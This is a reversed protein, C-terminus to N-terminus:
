SCARTIRHMYDPMVTYGADSVIEAWERGHDYIRNEYANIVHAIEHAIITPRTMDRIGAVCYRFEIYCEGHQCRTAALTSDSVSTLDDVFVIRVPDYGYARMMEANISNVEQEFRMFDSSDATTPTSTGSLAVMTAILLTKM